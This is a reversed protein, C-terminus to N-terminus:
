IVVIIIIIEKKMEKLKKVVWRLIADYDSSYEKYNSSKYLNLEVICKVTKDM